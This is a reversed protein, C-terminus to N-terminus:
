NLPIAYNKLSVRLSNPKSKRIFLKHVDMESNVLRITRTKVYLYVLDGSFCKLRMKLTIEKTARQNSINALVCVACKGMVSELCQDNVLKGKRSRM